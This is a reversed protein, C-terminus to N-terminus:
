TGDIIVSLVCTLMCFFHFGPVSKLLPLAIVYVVRAEESYKSRPGTKELM